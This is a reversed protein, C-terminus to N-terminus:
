IANALREADKILGKTDTMARRVPRIEVFDTERMNITVELTVKEGDGLPVVVNQYSPEGRGWRVSKLSITVTEPKKPVVKVAKVAKPAKRPARTKPEARTQVAKTSAAKTTRKKM